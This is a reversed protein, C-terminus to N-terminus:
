RWKLKNLCCKLTRNVALVWTWLLLFSSITYLYLFFGVRQSNRNKFKFWKNEQASIAALFTRWSHPLQQQQQETQERCKRRWMIIEHWVYNLNFLYIWRMSTSNVVRITSKRKTYVVRLQIVNKVYYVHKTATNQVVKQLIGVFPIPGLSFM